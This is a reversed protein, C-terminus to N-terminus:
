IYYIECFDKLNLAKSSLKNDIIKTKREEESLGWYLQICPKNGSEFRNNLIISKKIMEDYQNSNLLIYCSCNEGNIKFKGYSCVILIYSNLSLYHKLDSLKPTIKWDCVNSKIEVYTNPKILYDPRKMENKTKDELLLTGTDDIGVCEYIFDDGFHKKGFNAFWWNAINREILHGNYIDIGFEGLTRNDKRYLFQNKFKVPLFKEIKNLINKYPFNNNKHYHIFLLKFISNIKDVDNWDVSQFYKNLDDENM